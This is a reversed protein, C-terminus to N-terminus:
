AKEFWFTKSAPKLTVTAKVAGELEESRSMNTISFNAALGQSGTTDMAGDLFLGAILADSFYATQVIDFGSDETDWNMEFEVSGDKLTGVTGRWGNNGRVTVDAEGKELNLTVNTINDLLSWSGNTAAGIASVGAADASALNTASIYAKCNMGLKISM